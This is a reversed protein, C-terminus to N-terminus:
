QLGAFANFTGDTTNGGVKNDKYSGLVGGTAAYLGTTNFLISSKSVALGAGAGVAVLGYNNGTVTTNDILLVVSATPSSVGIGFNANGAVVSDRVVGHIIGGGTGDAVIGFFNNEIRTRDITVDAEVGSAPKIVIGGSVGIGGNDIITCDSVFLKAAFVPSFAIAIGAGITRNIKAKQVHLTGAGKFNILNGSSTQGDIDLGRLIVTDTVFTNLITFFAVGGNPGEVTPTGIAAECNITISKDIILNSGLAAFNGSDVCTIEGGAPTNALAGQFSACPNARDCSNGDSGYSAVWTHWHMAQAPAALLVPAFALGIAATLHTIKRM